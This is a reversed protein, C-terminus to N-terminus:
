LVYIFRDAVDKLGSLLLALFIGAARITTKTDNSFHSVNLSKNFASKIAQTM